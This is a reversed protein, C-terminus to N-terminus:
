VPDDPAPGCEDVTTGCDATEGLTGIRAAALAATAGLAANLADFDERGCARALAARVGSALTEVSDGEDVVLRLAGRLNRWLTAAEALEEAAGDDIRGQAAAARFVSAAAPAPDDRADDGLLLQLSRAAREVHQVGGRMDDLSSLGPEAAADGSERLEAIATDRAASASLAERRAEEFRQGIGAGGYEFICRARTLDLLEGATAATHFHESFDALSRVARGKGGRPVPAFLLSDRSLEGLADRFRRCLGDHAGAPDGDHVFLIDLAVGPAAERSALDGLVAAAVGGHRDGFEEAVASLVAAISAEALNSLAIGAEVPSLNGRLTHVGIQFAKDNSWGRVTEVADRADQVPIEAIRENMEAVGLERTWYLRTLGRRATAETEPDPGFGRPLDLDTFERDQLGDLLEPNREIRKALRPAAGYIEVIADFAEPRAASIPSDYASWDDIEPYFQARWRDVLPDMTEFWKRPRVVLNFMKAYSGPLQPSEDAGCNQLLPYQRSAVAHHDPHRQMNYFMWNSFKYNANWSHRPRVKEFRGNPLRIRRLGYHQMYNSIKMSCVVGLCLVAYALVAWPGGWWLILGYWFATEIGYRWFPNGYHWIPLRRRALRERVVRWSGTLNSAVERPFYNWFSQGRPASGVDLPTGVLAHHIYVHETAYQPYSASALLFEGLRREWAARRHILEHGVIFVAQAEGTLVVALLVCEWVAFQGSGLIQWLGFVFIPPWLLAWLWVPLNHWFLRGEPTGAPDMNREDDGIAIDLPGALMFFAFPAAIWWGGHILALVILPFIALPLFHPLAGGFSPEVTRATAPNPGDPLAINEAM